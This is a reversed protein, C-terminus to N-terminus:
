SETDEDPEDAEDPDGSPTDGYLLDDVAASVERLHHRLWREAAETDGSAVHEVLRSHTAHGAGSHSVRWGLLYRGLSGRLGEIMEVTKPANSADYLERYFQVRKDLFQDGEEEADLAAALDRLRAVREPTMTAMSKRLAYTELLERLEYIEAIERHTLSQVVYGRRPHFELLGEAELRVLAARVPLRSVGIATALAEQRLREGPSFAGSVVAERLVEYVMDGISRYGRGLRAVVSELSARAAPSQGTSAPVQDRAAVASSRRDTTM